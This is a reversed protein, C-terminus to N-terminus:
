LMALSSMSLGEEVHSPLSTASLSSGTSSQMLLNTSQISHSSSIPVEMVGPMASVMRVSPLQMLQVYGSVMLVKTQPAELMCDVSGSMLHSNLQMMLSTCSAMHSSDHSLMSVADSHLYMVLSAGVSSKLSGSIVPLSTDCSLLGM